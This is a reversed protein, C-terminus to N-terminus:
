GDRLAALRDSVEWAESWAEIYGWDLDPLAILNRLDVIDKLRHAILKLVILDEPTAIPPRGPRARRIVEEQFSTKAAQLDVPPDDIGRAFRLFDPGSPLKAGVARVVRYGHDALARRVAEIGDADARVTLDIDATFRPEAWVNVAHGGILVGSLQHEELIDALLELADPASTM